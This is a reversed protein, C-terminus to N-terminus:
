SFNPERREQFAALGEKTDSSRMADAVVKAELALGDALTRELGDYALRKMVGIGTRSRKALRLCYEFAKGRLEGDPVVYNVLGWSCAEEASIWRASYMLDLARRVGVIRSLRQSGGWGPILGYQAHQDGLRAGEGAFAVDCALMLELGGALALGQIAVVTALDSEELARFVAHGKDGFAAFEGRDLRELVQALDAGTCFNKGASCVLVSRVGDDKEFSEMAQAIGDLVGESICNFKEPRNIEIVGVGERVSHLVSQDEAM